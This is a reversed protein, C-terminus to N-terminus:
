SREYKEKISRQDAKLLEDLSLKGDYCLQVQDNTIRKISFGHHRLIYTERSKDKGHQSETDHYGGDVEIILDNVIFDARYKGKYGKTGFMIESQFKINNRELIEKMLAEYDTDVHADAIVQYKEEKTLRDFNKM